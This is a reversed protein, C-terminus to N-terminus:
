PAILEQQEKMARSVARLVAAFGDPEHAAFERCECEFWHWRQERAAEDDRMPESPLDFHNLPEM